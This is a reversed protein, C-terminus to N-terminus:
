TAASPHHIIFPSLKPQNILIHNNRIALLQYSNEHLGEYSEAETLVQLLKALLSQKFEADLNVLRDITPQIAERAEKYESFCFGVIEHRNELLFDDPFHAVIEIGAKRLLEEDSSIYDEFSDKFM